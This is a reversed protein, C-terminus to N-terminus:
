VGGGGDPEAPAPGPMRSLPRSLTAAPSFRAPDLSSLDVAPDEDALLAAVADATVPALLVGSRYHGTALILGGLAGPGILPANDPTGPRLGAVAEVLELEAIEPLARYGERLLELVGGATVATDFGREEVTAGLVLRGDDRPVAYFREGAVIRESIQGSSTGRLTLIQGKVPRVPPRAEPPLWEAAGSWCGAALVVAGAELEEGGALAVGRANGGESLLGTVESDELLEGGAARLAAALAEALARPDVAAEEPALLGGTCAPALGPELERCRRAPLWESALGLSTHLGHRRRLEEAEDRDLAVHLAGTQRYAAALGSEAEFEAAFEPWARASALALELLNEEGWTAEGVPALMGAAVGTAGAAVRDREVVCVGLGRQAARWGCALGIVGGGVIVADYSTRKENSGPM